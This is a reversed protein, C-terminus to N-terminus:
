NENSFLCFYFTSIFYIFELCKSNYINRFLNRWTIVLYQLNFDFYKRKVISIFAWFSPLLLMFLVTIFFDKNSLQDSYPNFYLFLLSLLLYKYIFDIRCLCTYQKEYNLNERLLLRSIIRNEFCIKHLQEIFLFCNAFALQLSFNVDM